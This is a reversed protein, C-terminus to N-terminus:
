LTDWAPFEPEPSPSDKITWGLKELETKRDQRRAQYDLGIEAYPLTGLVVYVSGTFYEEEPEIGETKNEEWWKHRVWLALHYGQGTTRYGHRFGFYLHPTWTRTPSLESPLEVGQIQVEFSPGGARFIKYDDWWILHPLGEKSLSLVTFTLGRHLVSTDLTKDSIRKWDEETKALKFKFVFERPDRIRITVQYPTFDEPEPKEETKKYLANLASFCSGFLVAFVISQLSTFELWFHFGAWLTGLILLPIVFHKWILNLSTRIESM